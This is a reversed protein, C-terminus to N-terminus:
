RHIAQRTNLKWPISHRALTAAPSAAGRRCSPRPAYPKVLQFLATKWNGTKSPALPHPAHACPARAPPPIAGSRPSELPKPSNSDVYTSIHRIAAFNQVPPNGSQTDAPPPTALREPRGAPAIRPGGRLPAHPPLAQATLPFNRRRIECKVGYEQGITETGTFAKPSDGSQKRLHASNPCPQRMAAPPAQALHRKLSKLFM